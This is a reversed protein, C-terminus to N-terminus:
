GTKENIYIEKIPEGTGEIEDDAISVLRMKYLVSPTYKAGLSAWLHNLQEMNMTVMEMTINRLRPDLDPTNAPTFKNKKQFFGIMLSIMKMAENYDSPFYPIVLIYLNLKIEPKKIKLSGDPQKHYINPDKAIREEETNVLSLIIKDDIGSQLSGDQTLLNNAIVRESESIKVSLYSNLEAIIHELALHIM